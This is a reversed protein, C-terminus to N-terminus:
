NTENCLFKNSQVTVHVYFAYAYEVCMCSMEYTCIYIYVHRCESLVYMCVPVYMIVYITMNDTLTSSNSCFLGHLPLLSIVVREKVDAGSTPPRYVGRWAAKGRSCLGPIRQVPTHRTCMELLMSVYVLELLM